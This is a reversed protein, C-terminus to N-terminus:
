KELAGNTRQAAADGSTGTLISDRASRFEEKAAELKQKFNAGLDIFEINSLYSVNNACDTKFTVYEAIAKILAIQEVLKDIEDFTLTFNNLKAPTNFRASYNSFEDKVAACAKQMAILHQADVLPENWLEFGNNLKQNALVAANSTEQAKKLM